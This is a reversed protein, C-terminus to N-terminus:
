LILVESLNPLRNKRLAIEPDMARVSALVRFIGLVWVPSLFDFDFDFLYVWFSTIPSSWRSRPGPVYPDSLPAQINSTAGGEPARTRMPGNIHHM